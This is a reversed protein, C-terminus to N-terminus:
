RPRKELYLYYPDFDGASKLRPVDLIRVRRSEVEILERRRMEQLTRNVHVATLGLCEGLEQQTLPFEYSDNDALGVVRLRERIECFLHAMRGLASRRGLSVTWERHIAADINTMLWYVRGLHPFRDLTERIREHSAIGVRCPTLTAINHDLRKLTFGHLDTFDGAFQLESIQRGGDSLDKTRAIWGDLLLLSEKLEQNRRVVVQDARYERVESVMSRIAAEEEASIHDRIRLKKLHAEIM